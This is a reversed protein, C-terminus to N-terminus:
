SEESTKKTLEIIGSIMNKIGAAFDKTRNKNLYGPTTVIKNEEDIVAESPKAVVHNIGLNELKQIVKADNGATLTLPSDVLDNLSGGILVSALGCGGLPKKRRYIERILKRAQPNVRLLNGENDTETLNKIIGEGGPIILASIGDGEIEKIERIEGNIRACESLLERKQSLIKQTKHNLVEKQSIDATTFVVRYGKEELFYLILVSERIDSGDLFGCGALIICIEKM